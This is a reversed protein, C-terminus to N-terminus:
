AVEEGSPPALITAFRPLVKSLWLTALVILPRTWVASSRMKFRSSSSSFNSFSTM